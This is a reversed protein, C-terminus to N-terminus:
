FLGLVELSLHSFKMHQLVCQVIWICSSLEASNQWLSVQFLSKNLTFSNQLFIGQFQLQYKSSFTTPFQRCVKSHFFKQYSEVQISYTKCMFGNQGLWLELITQPIGLCLNWKAKVLFPLRPSVLLFLAWKTTAIAYPFTTIARSCYFRLIFASFNEEKKQIIQCCTYFFEVQPSFNEQLITIRWLILHFSSRGRFSILVGFNIMRSFLESRFEIPFM